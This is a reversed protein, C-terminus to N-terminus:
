DKKSRDIERQEKMGIACPAELRPLMACLCLSIFLSIRGCMCVSVCIVGVKTNVSYGIDLYADQRSWRVPGRQGAM